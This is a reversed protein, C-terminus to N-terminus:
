TLLKNIKIRLYMLKMNFTIKFIICNMLDKTHKSYNKLIMKQIIDLRQIILNHVWHTKM